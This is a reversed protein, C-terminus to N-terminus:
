VRDPQGIAGGSLTALMQRVNTLQANISDRRQTAAALVRESDDRIREAKTKAEAVM